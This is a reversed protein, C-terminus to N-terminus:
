WPGAAFDSELFLLRRLNQPFRFLHFGAHFFEYRGAYEPPRIRAPGV